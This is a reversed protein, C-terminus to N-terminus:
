QRVAVGNESALTTAPYGPRALVWLFYDDAFRRVDVRTFGAVSLAEHLATEAANWDYPLFRKADTSILVAIDPQNALVWAPDCRGTVAIHADNLGLLDLTWWGSLYPVAGADSIALRARPTGLAALDRGLREHAASLGDAYDLRDRFVARSEAVSVGIPLICSAAALATGRARGWLEAVGLGFLVCVTPDLPALYRSDYGMLHQPLLFFTTLALVVALPPRLPRPPARLVFLLPLAFRWSSGLWELVPPIGPLAGPSALKVYFPLPLALGYYRFRVVEYFVLPIATVVLRRLLTFRQAPSILVLVTGTSVVVAIAAEPRTVAAGLALVCFPTVWAVGDRVIRAAAFLMATLLLTFPATEMGSVAHIATRPLAGYGAVAAASALIRAANGRTDSYVWFGVLTGTAITAVVGLWKAAAIASVHLLHPVALVLMWLFSTYGEARAGTTNYVAGFGQAVNRSYRLTIYADDVTFRHVLAINVALVAIGLVAPAWLVRALHGEVKALANV